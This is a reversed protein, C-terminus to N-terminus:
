WVCRVWVWPTKGSRLCATSSLSRLLLYRRTSPAHFLMEGIILLSLLSEHSSSCSSPLYAGMPQSWKYRVVDSKQLVSIGEKNIIVLRTPFRPPSELFLLTFMCPYLIIHFSSDIVKNWHCSVSPFLLFQQQSRALTGMAWGVSCTFTMSDVNFHCRSHAPVIGLMKCTYMNLWEFFHIFYTGKNDKLYSNVSACITLEVLTVYSSGEM